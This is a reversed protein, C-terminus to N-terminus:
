YKFNVIIEKESTNGAEDTAVIKIKNEGENLNYSLSFYGENNALTLRDNILLRANAETSGIIKTLQNKKLEITAKDLPSDITITPAISDYKIVYKTSLSSENGAEDTAYFLLENSGEELTVETEFDGQESITLAEKEEGNVVMLLKAKAEGFGSIKIAASNTATAPAAIIPVQPPITDKNEFLPEGDLVNFAFRVANPLIFFIFILFLAIALLVFFVTQKLLNKEQRKTLRSTPM